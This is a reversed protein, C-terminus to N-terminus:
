AGGQNLKQLLQDLENPNKFHIVIRGGRGKLVLDVAMGLLDTLHQCLIEKEPDPDKSVTEDKPPVKQKALREAQRVNLNKEIIMEALLEPHECGLLARGHGASLTGKKLHAQVSEPLMLLRLTNAIHSRSKGLVRALSDQTHNFEEALRHYAGAEDIPDLDQRQLNELLGVELAEGTTFDRVIVPIKELNILKAARWRREGAVIEYINEQSPHPRVLIPQLIGKEKISAALSLIEADPFSRRPQHIGAAICHTPLELPSEGTVREDEASSEFLASLGRGLVKKRMDSM